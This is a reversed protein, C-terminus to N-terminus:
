QHRKGKGKVLTFGDDDIEVMPPQQSANHDVLMPVDGGDGEVSEGESDWDSEDGSGEEVQYSTKSIKEAQAELRTTTEVKGAQADEWLRVIEEAIQGVSDDELIVEFEDELVQLLTLEVYTADPSPDQEEFADVIVSALWTRKAASEPGGWGQDVAIRLAPWTSLRAILGRAFLVSTSPPSTPPPNISTAASM